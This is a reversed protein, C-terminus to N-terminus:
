LYLAFDLHRWRRVDCTARNINKKKKKKKKQHATRGSALVLTSLRVLFLFFLKISKKLHVFTTGPIPSPSNFCLKLEINKDPKACTQCLYLKKKKESPNVKLM